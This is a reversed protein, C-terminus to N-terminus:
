FTDRRLRIFDMQESVSRQGWPWLFPDAILGTSVEVGPLLRSGEQFCLVELDAEKGGRKNNRKKKKKAVTKLVLSM